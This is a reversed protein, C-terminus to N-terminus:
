APEKGFFFKVKAVQGAVIEVETKGSVVGGLNAEVEYKGPRLPISQSDGVPITTESFYYPETSWIRISSRTFTLAGLPISPDLEIKVDIFGTPTVVKKESMIRVFFLITLRRYPKESEDEPLNKHCVARSM